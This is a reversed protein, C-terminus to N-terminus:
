FTGQLIRQCVSKISNEEKAVLEQLIGSHCSFVRGLSSSHVCLKFVCMQLPQLLPSPTHHVFELQLSDKFLYYYFIFIIKFLGVFFIM